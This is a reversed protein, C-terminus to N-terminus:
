DITVNDKKSYTEDNSVNQTKDYVQISLEAKNKIQGSLIVGLDFMSYAGIKNKAVCLHTKTTNICVSRIDSVIKVRKHVLMLEITEREASTLEYKDLDFDLSSAEELKNFISALVLGKDFKSIWGTKRKIAGVHFNVTGVSMNLTRAVATSDFFKILAVTVASEIKSLVLKKRAPVSPNLRLCGLGPAEKIRQSMIPPAMKLRYKSPQTM